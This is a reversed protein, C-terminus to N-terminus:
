LNEEKNKGRELLEKIEEQSICAYGIDVGVRNGGHFDSGGVMLLNKKMALEKYYKKEKSTYSSYEVELGDLGSEKLVEIIKEVKERSVSVLSPHALASVGGCKKILEVIEKPDSNGKEVYAVGNRGLYQKFAEGKSYVFGKNMMVNCIHARSVITGTAEREVEELTIKLGRDNLKKIMKINREKRAKKLDILKDKLEQCGEDLFYGLIHIELGDLACSFEIGPIFDLDLLKAIEKGEEIGEMTDHDSIAIGKIGLVKARELIEKVTFTGDSYTTHIHLDYCRNLDKM